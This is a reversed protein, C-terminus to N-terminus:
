TISIQPLCARFRFIMTSFSPRISAVKLYRTFNELRFVFEYVRKSSFKGFRPLPAATRRSQQRRLFRDPQKESASKDVGSSSVDFYDLRNGRSLDVDGKARAREIASQDTIM